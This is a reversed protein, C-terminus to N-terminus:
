IGWKGKHWYHSVSELPIGVDKVEKALAKHKHYRHYSRELTKRNCQYKEALGKIWERQSVDQPRVEISFIEGSTM